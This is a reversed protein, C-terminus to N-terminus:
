IGGNRGNQPCRFLETGRRKETSGSSLHHLVPDDVNQNAVFVRCWDKANPKCSRDEWGRSKPVSSRTHAPATTHEQRYLTVPRFAAAFATSYPQSFTASPKVPRKGGSSLRSGLLSASIPASQTNRGVIRGKPAVRTVSGFIPVPPEFRWRIIPDRFAACPNGSTERRRRPHYQNDV